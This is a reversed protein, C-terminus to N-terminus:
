INDLRMTKLLTVFFWSVLCIEIRHSTIIEFYSIENEFDICIKFKLQFFNLDMCMFFFGVFEKKKLLFFLLFVCGKLHQNSDDARDRVAMHAAIDETDIVAVAHVDEGATGVAHGPARADQIDANGRAVGVVCADRDLSPVTVGIVIGAHDTVELVTEKVELVIKTVAVVVTVGIEDHIVETTVTQLTVQQVVTIRKAPDTQKPAVPVNEVHVHRSGVTMAQLLVQRTPLQHTM